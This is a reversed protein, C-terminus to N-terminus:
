LDDDEEDEDDEEPAEYDEFEDEAKMRGSFSEGDELFQLNQLYFGVGKNGAKNYPAAVVTARAYCGAYVESPDQIKERLANVVGPKDFTTARVFIHGPYGEKSSYDEEKDGDRFPSRLNAPKKGDWKSKIGEKIAADHAKELAKLNTGKPFLMTVGYKPTENPDDDNIKQPVFLAPFSVRFKPTMCKRPNTKTEKSM